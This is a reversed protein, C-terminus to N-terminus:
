PRVYMFMIVDDPSITRRWQDIKKITASWHADEGEPFAVAYTVCQQHASRYRWAAAQLECAIPYYHVPVLMLVDACRDICADFSRQEFAVYAEEMLDYVRQTWPNRLGAKRFLRECAFRSHASKSIILAGAQEAGARQIFARLLEVPPDLRMARSIEEVALAECAMELNACASLLLAWAAANAQPANDTAIPAGLSRESSDSAVSSDGARPRHDVDFAYPRAQAQSHPRGLLSAVAIALIVVGPWWLSPAGTASSCPPRHRKVDM